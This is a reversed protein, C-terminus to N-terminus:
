QAPAIAKSWETAWADLPALLGVLEWGDPTLTYGGPEHTLLLLARLEKIRTNLVSPSTACADQLARFTLPGAEALEWLIRLTGRRGLADLLVM